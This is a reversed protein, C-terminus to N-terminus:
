LFFFWAVFIALVIALGVGVIIWSGRSLGGKTAQASGTAKLEPPPTVDSGSYYASYGQSEDRPKPQALAVQAGCKGCVWADEKLPEGCKTCNAM